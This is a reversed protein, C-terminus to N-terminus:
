FSFNGFVPNDMNVPGTEDSLHVELAAESWIEFKKGKGMFSVSKDLNVRKRLAPPLLVRGQGDMMVETAFGIMLRQLRRVNPDQSPLSDLEREIEGWILEPYLLICNDVSATVVLQSAYKDVLEARYKMPIVLRGKGDLNLPTVGRFM